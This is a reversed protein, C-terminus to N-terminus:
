LSQPALGTAIRVGAGCKVRVRARLRARLRVTARFDSLINLLSRLDVFHVWCVGGYRCMALRPRSPQTTSPSTWRSLCGKM